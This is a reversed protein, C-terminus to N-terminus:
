IKDCLMEFETVPDETSWIASGVIIREAGAESLKNIQEEKVGGDIQIILDPALKKLEIVREFTGEFFNEGQSGEREIGMIQVFDIIDKYKLVENVNIDTGIALGLEVSLPGHLTYKKKFDRLFLEREQENKFSSYHVIIRSAGATVFTDAVARPNAVMLDFEYSVDEWEPLSTDEHVLAALDSDEQNLFPWTKHPQNEKKYEGDVIDIQVWPSVESIVRVKERIDDFSSSLIAPIIECNEKNM